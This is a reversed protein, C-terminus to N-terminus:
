GCIEVVITTTTGDPLMVTKIVRRCPRTVQMHMARAGNGLFM